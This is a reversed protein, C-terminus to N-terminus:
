EKRWMNAMRMSLCNDRNKEQPIKARDAMQTLSLHFSDPRNMIYADLDLDNDLDFFVAHTSYSNRMWAMNPPQNKSPLIERISTSCIPGTRILM